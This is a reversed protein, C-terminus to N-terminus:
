PLLQFPQTAGNVEAMGDCASHFKIDIITPIPVFGGSVETIQATGSIPNTRCSPDLVANTITSARVGGLGGASASTASVTVLDDAPDATGKSDVTVKWTDSAGVAIASGSAGAVANAGTYSIALSTGSRSASVQTVNAIALAKNSQAAVQANVFTQSLTAQDASSWSGTVTVSGSAMGGLPLPCGAGLTIDVAGTSCPYTTCATKVTACATATGKVADMALASVRGVASATTVGFQVEDISKQQSSGCAGLLGLAAGFLLKNNM